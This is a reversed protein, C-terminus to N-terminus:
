LSNCSASCATLGPRVKSAEQSSDEKSGEWGQGMRSGSDVGGCGSSSLLLDGTVPWAVVRCNKDTGRDLLYPRPDGPLIM